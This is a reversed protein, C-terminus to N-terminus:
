RAENKIARASPSRRIFRGLVFGVILVTVVLGILAAKFQAAIQLVPPRPGFEADYNLAFILPVLLFAVNTFAAWFKAREATGCLDVLITRLHAHLYFVVLLSALLTVELGCLFLSVNNM